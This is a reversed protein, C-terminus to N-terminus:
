SKPTSYYELPELVVFSRQDTINVNSCLRVYVFM